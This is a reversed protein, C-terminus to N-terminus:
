RSEKLHSVIAMLDLLIVVADPTPHGIGVVHESVEGGLVSSAVEVQSEALRIVQRVEDVAVGFLEGEPGNTLLIRTRQPTEASPLNLRRRLEVVTVLLGRVSCVGIVARPARPVFTIPPPSLIERVSTLEVGYIDAGVRFSLLERVPGREANLRRQAARTGVKVLDAM